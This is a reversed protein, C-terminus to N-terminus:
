DKKIIFHNSFYDQWRQMIHQVKRDVTKPVLALISAIERNTFGQLKLRAIDRARDDELSKLLENWCDMIELLRDRGSDDDLFDDLSCSYQELLDTMNQITIGSQGIVKEERHREIVQQQTLFIMHLWLDERHQLNPFRGLQTNRAIAHMVLIAIDEGDESLRMRASLKKHAYESLKRFYREVLKQIAHPDGDRM